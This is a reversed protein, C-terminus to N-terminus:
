FFMETIFLSNGWCYNSYKDILKKNLQCKLRRLADTDDEYELRYKTPNNYSDNFQKEIRREESVKEKLINLENLSKREKWYKTSLYKFYNNM